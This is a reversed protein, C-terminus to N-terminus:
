VLPDYQHLVRATDDTSQLGSSSYYRVRQLVFSRVQYSGWGIRSNSVSCDPDYANLNSRWTTNQVILEGTGFSGWTSSSGNIVEFIMQGDAIRMVSTYRIEENAFRLSDWNANSRSRLLANNHWLQLQVGGAAFYPQTACNLDFVGFSGSSTTWSPSMVTTIQPSDTAPEPTGLKVYWDEEVRITNGNSEDAVVPTLARLGAAALPVGGVLGLLRRCASRRSIEPWKTPSM